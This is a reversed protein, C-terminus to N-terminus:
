KLKAQITKAQQLHDQLTPLTKAAWAKIDADGSERSAREFEAVDKQHDEVMHTMYMRDFERESLGRVHEAADKQAETPESPMALGKATVLQQLERNAAGHDNIMRLGFAKVDANSAKEQAIQGMSVEALSGQAAKMVFEKDAPSLATVSGGTSGTTTASTDMAATDSSGALGENIKESDRRCAGATLLLSLGIAFVTFRM